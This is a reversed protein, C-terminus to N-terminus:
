RDEKEGPAEDSAEDPTTAASEPAEDSKSVEAAGSGGNVTEAREPQMEFRKEPATEGRVIELEAVVAAMIRDTAERMVATTVPVGRLDALDVPAGARINIVKRPFLRVRKKYPPLMEHAGWQAVPIVDCGTELAVRAAGTKGGMPWMQPDRTITGEPYIVICEGTKVAQVADRYAVAADGTRRYVPIQGCRAIIKGAVPIRFLSEKALFRTARGNDWLFHAFTLPDAHSIHNAAIVVGTGVPPIHEGGSWRQRTIALLTPKVIGAVVRYAVGM